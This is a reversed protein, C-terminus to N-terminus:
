AGRRKAYERRRKANLKKKIRSHRKAKYQKRWEGSCGVSCFKSQSHSAVFHRGCQACPEKARWSEGYLYLIARRYTDFSVNAPKPSDETAYDRAFDLLTNTASILDLVEREPFGNRWVEGLRSQMQLWLPYKGPKSDPRPGYSHWVMSPLFDPYEKRFAAVGSLGLDLFRALAEASKLRTRHENWGLDNRPM